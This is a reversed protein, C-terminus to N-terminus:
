HCVFLYFMFWVTGFLQFNRATDRKDKATQPVEKAAAKKTKKVKGNKENGGGGGGGTQSETAKDVIGALSRISIGAGSAPKSASLLPMTSSDMLAAVGAAHPKVSVNAVGEVTCTEKDTYKGGVFCWFRTSEPDDPADADPVPENKKLIATIKTRPDNSKKCIHFSKQESLRCLFLFFFPGDSFSFCTM